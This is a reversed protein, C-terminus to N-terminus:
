PGLLPKVSALEEPPPPPGPCDKVTFRLWHQREGAGSILLRDQAMAWLAVPGSYSKRILAWRSGGAYISRQGYVIVEIKQGPQWPFSIQRDAPYVHDTESNWTDGTLEDDVATYSDAVHVDVTRYPGYGPPSHGSVLEVTARSKANWQNFQDIWVSAVEAARPNDGVAEKLQTKFESWTLEGRGAVERWAKEATALAGLRGAEASRVSEEWPSQVRHSWPEILKRPQSGWRAWSARTEQLPKWFDKLPKKLWSTEPWTALAAGVSELAADPTSATITLDHWVARVLGSQRTEEWPAQQFQAYAEQRQRTPWKASRPEAVVIRQRATEADRVSQQWKRILETVAESPPPTLRTTLAEYEASPHGAFTNAWLRRADAEISASTSSPPEQRRALEAQTLTQARQAQLTDRESTLIEVQHSAATASRELEGMRAQSDQLRRSMWGLILSCAIVAFMILAAHGAGARALREYRQLGLWRQQVAPGDPLRRDSDALLPWILFHRRWWCVRDGLCSPRRGPAEGTRATFKRRANAGAFLEVAILGLAYVDAISTPAQLQRRWEPPFTEPTHPPMRAGDSWYPLHGLEAHGIWVRTQDTLTPADLYINAARLDGHTLGQRHLNALGQIIQTLISWALARDNLGSAPIHDALVAPFWPFVLYIARGPITGMELPQCVGPLNHSALKQLSELWEGTWRDEASIEIIRLSRRIPPAGHLRHDWCDYMGVHCEPLARQQELVLGDPLL